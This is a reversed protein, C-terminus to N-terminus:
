ESDDAGNDDEDDNDEDGNEEDDEDELPVREGGLVLWARRGVLSEITNVPLVGLDLKELEM